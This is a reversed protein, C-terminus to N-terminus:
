LCKAIKIQDCQRHDVHEGEVRFDLPEDTFIYNSLFWLCCFILMRQATAAANRKRLTNAKWGTHGSFIALHRYIIEISFHYIKVGKCFNGLFTHSKPLNITTLPKLFNGLICFFRGIQDCQKWCLLATAKIRVVKWYFIQKTISFNSFLVFLPSWSKCMRLKDIITGKQDIWPIRTTPLYFSSEISLGKLFIIM